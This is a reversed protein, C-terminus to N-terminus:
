WEVVVAAAATAIVTPPHSTMNQNPLFKTDSEGPAIYEGVAATCTSGQWCVYVGTTSTFQVKIEITGGLAGTPFAGSNPALSLGANVAASSTSATLVGQGRLAPPAIAAYLPSNASSGGGGCARGTQDQTLPQMGNTYQATGCAPVVLAGQAHAHPALFGALAMWLCLRLAMMGINM